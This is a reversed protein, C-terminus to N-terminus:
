KDSSTKKIMLTLKFFNRARKARGYIYLKCIYVLISLVLVNKDRSVILSLITM